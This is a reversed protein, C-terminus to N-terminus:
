VFKIGIRFNALFASESYFFTLMESMRVNYQSFPDSILWYYFTWLQVVFGLTFVVWKNRLDKMWNTYIFFLPFIVSIYRTMAVPTGASLPLLLSIWIILNFSLSFQKRYFFAIFFFLLPLRQM